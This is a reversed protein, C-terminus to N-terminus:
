NCRVKINVGINMDDSAAESVSSVTAHYAMGRQLNESITKNLGDKKAIYGLQEGDVTMVKVAYRDYQNNPDAIFELPTGPQLKGTRALKAILRQRGEFTVGVIKTYFEM